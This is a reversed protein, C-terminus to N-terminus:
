TFVVIVVEVDPGVMANFLATMRVGLLLGLDEQVSFRDILLRNLLIDRPLHRSIM